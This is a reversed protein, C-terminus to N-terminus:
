DIMFMAGTKKPLFKYKSFILLMTYKGSRFSTYMVATWEGPHSCCPRMPFTAGDNVVESSKSASQGSTINLTNSGNQLILLSPNLTFLPKISVPFTFAKSFYFDGDEAWSCTQCRPSASLSSRLLWHIRPWPSVYALIVAARLAM